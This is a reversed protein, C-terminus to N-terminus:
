SAPNGKLNRKVVAVLKPTLEERPFVQAHRVSIEYWQFYVERVGPIALLECALPPADSAGRDYRKNPMGRLEDSVHLTIFERNPMFEVQIRLGDATQELPLLRPGEGQALVKEAADSEQRARGAEPMCAALSAAALVVYVLRSIFQM